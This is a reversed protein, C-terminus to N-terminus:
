QRHLIQAALANDNIVILEEHTGSSTTMSLQGSAKDLQWTGKWSDPVLSSSETFTNDAAFTYSGSITTSSAVGKADYSTLTESTTWTGVLGQHSGQPALIAAALRTADLFYPAALKHRKGDTETLDLTPTKDDIVFSGNLHQPGNSAQMKYDEAFTGDHNFTLTTSTAADSYTWTGYISPHDSPQGCGLMVLPLGLLMVVTRKIMM